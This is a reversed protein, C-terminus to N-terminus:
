CIIQIIQPHYFYKSLQQKQFTSDQTKPQIIKDTFFRNFLLLMTMVPYIRCQPVMSCGDDDDDYRTMLGDEEM